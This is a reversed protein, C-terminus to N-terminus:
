HSVLLKVHALLGAVETKSVIKDVPLDSQRLSAGLDAYQTFLIIPIEPMLRKLERAATLGNMIPMSLDLVIINPRHKVALDIAEQGYAAEVCVDFSRDSEFMECLRRRITLNDDAVLIMTAMDGRCHGPRVARPQM